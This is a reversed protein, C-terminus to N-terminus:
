APEAAALAAAAAPLSIREALLLTPDAADAAPLPILLPALANPLPIRETPLLIPDAPDLVAEATALPTLVAPLLVRFAALLPRLESSLVAFLKAAGNTSPAFRNVSCTDLTGPRARSIALDALLLRLEPALAAPLLVRFAALLPRLATFLANLDLADFPGTANIVM